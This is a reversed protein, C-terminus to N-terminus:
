PQVYRERKAFDLASRATLTFYYYIDERERERERARQFIFNELERQHAVSGEWYHTGSFCFSVNM